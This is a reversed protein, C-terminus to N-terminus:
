KTYVHNCSPSVIRIFTFCLSALPDPISEEPFLHTPSAGGGFPDPFGFGRPRAGGGLPDPFIRETSGGGGLSGATVLSVELGLPEFSLALCATSGKDSKECSSTLGEAYIHKKLQILNGFNNKVTSKM